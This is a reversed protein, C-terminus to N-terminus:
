RKVLKQKMRTLKGAVSEDIRIGGAEIVFGALLEPEHIYEFVVKNKHFRKSMSCSQVCFMKRNTQM